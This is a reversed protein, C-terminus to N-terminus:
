WSYTVGTNINIKETKSLKGSVSTRFSWSDNTNTRSHSYNISLRPDLDGINTSANFGISNRGKGEKFVKYPITMLHNDAEDYININGSTPGFALFTFGRSKNRNLRYRQGPEGTFDIKDDEWTIKIRTEYRALIDFTFLTYNDDAKIEKSIDKQKVILDRALELKEEKADERKPNSINTRILSPDITISQEAYVPTIWLVCLLLLLYKM